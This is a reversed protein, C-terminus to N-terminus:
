HLYEGDGGMAHESAPSERAGVDHHGRLVSAPNQFRVRKGAHRARGENGIRRANRAHTKRADAFPKDLEREFLLALSQRLVCSLTRQRELCPRSEHLAVDRM